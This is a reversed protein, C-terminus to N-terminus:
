FSTLGALRTSCGIMALEFLPASDRISKSVPSLFRLFRSFGPVSPVNESVQLDTQGAIIRPEFLPVDRRDGDVARPAARAIEVYSRSRLSNM